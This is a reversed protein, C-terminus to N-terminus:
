KSAEMHLFGVYCSYGNDHKELHRGLFSYSIRPMMVIAAVIAKILRIIASILGMFCDFFFSFYLFVNFARFNELALIKSRRNLFIYKATYKNVLTKVILVAIFPVLSKILLVYTESSYVNLYALFACILFVFIYIIFYGWILYGILFGGFHFSSGAIKSNELNKAKKIFECEGKYLELLHTKCDKAILFLQILCIIFSIFVPLIM